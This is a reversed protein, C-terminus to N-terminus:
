AAQLALACKLATLQAVRAEASIFCCRWSVWARGYQQTLCHWKFSHMTLARFQWHRRMHEHWDPAASPAPPERRCPVKLPSTGFSAAQSIQRGRCCDQCHGLRQRSGGPSGTGSCEGRHLSRHSSRQVQSQAAQHDGPSIIGKYSAAHPTLHGCALLGLNTGAPQVGSHGGRWVVLEQQHGPQLPGEGVIDGTAAEGLADLDPVLSVSTPRAHMSHWGSSSCSRECEQVRSALQLM